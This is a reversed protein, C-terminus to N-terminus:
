FFCLKIRCQDCDEEISRLILSWHRVDRALTWGDWPIHNWHVRGLRFLIDLRHCTIGDIFLRLLYIRDLLHGALRRQGGPPFCRAFYECFLEGFCSISNRRVNTSCVISLISVFFPSTKMWLCLYYKWSAARYTPLGSDSNLITVLHKRTQVSAISSATWVTIASVRTADVRWRM